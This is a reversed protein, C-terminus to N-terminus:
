ETVANIQQSTHVKTEVSGLAWCWPLYTSLISYSVLQYKGGGVALRTRDEIVFRLKCPAQVFLHREDVFTPHSSYTPVCLDNGDAFLQTPMLVWEIAIHYVKLHQM